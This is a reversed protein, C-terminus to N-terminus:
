RHDQMIAKAIKMFRYCTGDAMEDPKFQQCALSNIWAEREPMHPNELRDLEINGVPAAPSTPALFVPIGAVIADIAVVSSHTVVAWCNQLHIRLPVNSLRDRVIIARRTRRPLEEKIWKIWGPMDLGISRGFEEGPLALLIHKGDKRWPRLKIGLANARAPKAEAIFQPTM